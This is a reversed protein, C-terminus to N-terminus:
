VEITVIKKIVLFGVTELVLAFSIAVWGTTTTVLPTMLEPNVFYLIAFAFLPMSAMVIAEFRGKATLTQLKDQFDRRGRIMVVMESLVDVLSGGSQTTLRIASSLLRLDECPMRDHMRLLSEVLDKGLRYERLVINLEEQMPGKMQGSVRELAQPLAMGAKLGNSLGATLDLIKSEFELQRNEVLKRYHSLPLMWGAFGAGGAMALLLVPNSLGALLFTLPILVAPVVCATLRIQFLRGGTVFRDMPAVAGSEALTARREADLEERRSRGAAAVMQGVVAALLLVATFVLIYVLLHM